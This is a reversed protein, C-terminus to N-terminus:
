QKQLLALKYFDLFRTFAEAKNGAKNHLRLDQSAYIKKFRRCINGRLFRRRFWGYTRSRHRSDDTRARKGQVEAVVGQM